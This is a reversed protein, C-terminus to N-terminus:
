SSTGIASLSKSISPYRTRSGHNCHRSLICSVSIYLDFVFSFVVYHSERPLVWTHLHYGVSAFLRQRLAVISVSIRRVHWGCMKGQSLCLAGRRGMSGQALPWRKTQGLTGECCVATNNGV